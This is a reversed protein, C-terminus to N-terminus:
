LDYIKQNEDNMHAFNYIINGAETNAESELNEDREQIDEPIRNEVYQKYHTLEHALTKLYDCLARNKIYVYVTNNEPIFSGTTMPIENRNNMFEINPLQKLNLHNKIYSLCNSIYPHKEPEIFEPINLKIKEENEFLKFLKNQIDKM